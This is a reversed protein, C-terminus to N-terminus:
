YPSPDHAPAVHIPEFDEGQELVVEGQKALELGAVFTVAWGHRPGRQAAATRTYRRGTARQQDAEVAAEQRDPADAPLPGEGPCASERERSESDSELQMRAITPM